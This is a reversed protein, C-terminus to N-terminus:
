APGPALPWSSGRAASDAWADALWRLSGPALVAGAALAASAADVDEADLAVVLVGRGAPGPACAQLVAARAADLRLGRRELLLKRRARARLPHLLATALRRISSRRPDPEGGLRQLRVAYVADLDTEIWRQAGPLAVPRAASEIETVVVLGAALDPPLAGIRRAAWPRRFGVVVVRDPLADVTAPADAAGDAARTGDSAAIGASGAISRARELLADAVREPAYRGVISARLASGDVGALRSRLRLIAAALGSADGTEAVERGAGAAATIEEVGGSRLHAIPLGSALAEAAVMGFTEHPSPHVFMGARRMAAAVGARDTSPEFTVSGVLGLDGALSTWRRETAADPADGIMRLHLEPVTRRAEAFADLLVAMGKSERRAGVWLLEDPDRGSPDGLPFDALSVPNPIVAVSGAQWGLSTEIMTALESGVANVGRGSGALRAYAARGAPDALQDSTRSSHETVLLPVEVRDALEAAAAGDPLGVHAYVLDFPWERALTAGFPVLLAAHAAIEAPITVDGGPTVVPLRAVPVGAVGWASGTNWAARSAVPQEWAAEARLAADSRAVGGALGVVDWSVVRVDRGAAVLAAVHDAVFAGRSPADHSPYWRAVVLVRQPWPGDPM